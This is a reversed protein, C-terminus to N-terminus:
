RRTGFGSGSVTTSVGGSSRVNVGVSTSMGNVDYSTGSTFSGAALGSTAVVSLSGEVGAAVKCVMSTESTWESAEAGSRGVRGGGSYRRFCCGVGRVSVLTDIMFLDSIDMLMM